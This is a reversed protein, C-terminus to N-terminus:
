GQPPYKAALAARIDAVTMIRWEGGALSAPPAGRNVPRILMRVEYGSPIKPGNNVITVRDAAISSEVVLADYGRRAAEDAAVLLAAESLANAQAGLSGVRVNFLAPDDANLIAYGEMDTRWFNNGEARMRPKVTEAGPLDKAISSYTLKLSAAIMRDMEDQIVKGGAERIVKDDESDGSTLRLLDGTVIVAEGKPRDTANALQSPTMTAARARYAIAQEWAALATEADTGAAKRKEWDERKRKGIHEMDAPAAPPVIAEAIDARAAALVAASQDPKGLGALVYARSGALSARDRILDYDRTADGEIGWGKRDRPLDFSIQRGYVNAEALRGDAIARFFLIRLFSPNLVVEDRLAQERREASKDFTLRVSHIAKRMNRAYPRAAQARNLLADAEEAKDMQYFAIARLVDNGQGLSPTFGSLKAVGDFADLAEQSKRGALLHIARAQSLSLKRDWYQAALLPDALAQDCAAAGEARYGVSPIIPPWVSRGFAFRQPTDGSEKLPLPTFFGDCILFYPKEVRKATAPMTLAVM